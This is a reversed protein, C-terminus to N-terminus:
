SEDCFGQIDGEVFSEADNCLETLAAVEEMEDATFGVRDGGPISRGLLLLQELSIRVNFVKTQKIM